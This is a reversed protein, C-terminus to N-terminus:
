ALESFLFDTSLSLNEDLKWLELATAHSPSVPLVSMCRDPLGPGELGVSMQQGTRM